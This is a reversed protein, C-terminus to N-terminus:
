SDSVYGASRLPLRRIDLRWAYTPSSPLRVQHSIADFHCHGDDNVDKMTRGNDALREELRTELELRRADM